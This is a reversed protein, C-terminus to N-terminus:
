VIPEDGTPIVERTTTSRAISHGPPPQYRCTAGLHLRVHTTGYKVTAAPYYEPGDVGDEVDMVTVYGEEFAQPNNMDLAGELGYWTGNKGFWVKRSETDTAIMVRDGVALAPLNVGTDFGTGSGAFDGSGGAFDERIFSPEDARVGPPIGIRYAILFDARGKIVPAHNGEQDLPVMIRTDETDDDYVCFDGYLVNEYDQTTHYHDRRILTSGPIQARLDPDSEGPYFPNTTVDYMPGGVVGISQFVYDAIGLTQHWGFWSGNTYSTLGSVPNAYGDIESGDLPGGAPRAVGGNNRQKVQFVTGGRTHRAHLSFQRDAPMPEGAVRDDVSNLDCVYFTGTTPYYASATTIVVYIGGAHWSQTRVTGRMNSTRVVGISRPKNLRPDLGIM